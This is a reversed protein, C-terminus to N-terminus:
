PAVGADPAEVGDVDDDSSELPGADVAGLSEPGTAGTNESGDTTAWVAASSESGDSTAPPESSSESGDTTASPQSSSESGDTTAWVDSSSEGGGSSGDVTPPSSTTWETPVPAGYVPQGWDATTTVSIPATPTPTVSTPSPSPPRPTIPQRPTVPPDTRPAVPPAVISTSNEFTPVVEPLGEDTGGDTRGGCAAAVTTGLAFAAARKLGAPISARRPAHQRELAAVDLSSACFPCDGNTLRVHRSCHPCPVLPSMMLTVKRSTHRPTPPPLVDSARTRCAPARSPLSGAM